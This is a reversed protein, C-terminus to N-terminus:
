LLAFGDFAVKQVPKQPALVHAREGLALFNAPFFSLACSFFISCFFRTFLDLTFCNECISIIMLGPVAEIM